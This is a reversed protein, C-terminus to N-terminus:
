KGRRRRSLLGAAGLTLVALSAPEPVQTLKFGNIVANDPSAAASGSAPPAGATMTLVISGTGNAHFGYTVLDRGLDAAATSAAQVFSGNTTGDADTLSTQITGGSAADGRNSTVLEYDGLALGSITMTVKRRGYYGDTLLANYSGGTGNNGNSFGGGSTNRHGGLDDTRFAVTVTQLGKGLDINSFTQSVPALNTGVIGSGSAGSTAAAPATYAVYGSQVTQGSLGIDVILAAHLTSATMAAVSFALLQRSLTMM